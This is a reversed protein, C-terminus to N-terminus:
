SKDVLLSFADKTRSDLIVAEIKYRYVKFDKSILSKCLGIMRNRLDEETTSHGTCFSDNSSRVPTDSERKQLLLKAVRFHYDSCINKFLDLREGFVPEITIHSKYVIVNM